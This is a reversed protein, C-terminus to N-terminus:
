EDEEVVISNIYAMLPGGQSDIMILDRELVYWKGDRLKVYIIGKKKRAEMIDEKKLSSLKIREMRM